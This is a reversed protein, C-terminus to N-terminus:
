LDALDDGPEVGMFRDDEVRHRHRPVSQADSLDGSAGGFMDAGADGEVPEFDFAGEVRDPRRHAMRAEKALERDLREVGPAIDDRRSALLDPADAAVQRAHVEIQRRGLARRLELRDTGVLGEFVSAFEEGVEKWARKAAVHGLRLDFRIQFEQLCPEVGLIAELVGHAPHVDGHQSRRFEEEEGSRGVIRGEGSAEGIPKPVTRRIFREEGRGAVAREM